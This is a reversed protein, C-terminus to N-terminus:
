SNGSRFKPLKKFLWIVAGFLTPAIVLGIVLVVIWNLSKVFNFATTMVDMLNFGFDATGFDVSLDPPTSASASTGMASLGVMAAAAMAVMKTTAKSFKDKVWGIVKKM